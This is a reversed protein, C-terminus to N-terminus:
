ANIEVPLIRFYRITENTIEDVFAGEIHEDNFPTWFFDCEEYQEGYMNEFNMNTINVLNAPRSIKAHGIGM